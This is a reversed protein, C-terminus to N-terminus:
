KLTVAEIKLNLFEPLDTKGNGLYVQKLLFGDKQLFKYKTTLEFVDESTIKHQPIKLYLSAFSVEYDFSLLNKPLPCIEVVVNKYRLVGLYLTVGSTDALLNSPYITFPAESRLSSDINSSGAVKLETDPIEFDASNFRGYDNFNNEKSNFALQRTPSLEFRNGKKIFTRATTTNKQGFCGFAFLFVFFTISYSKAIHM